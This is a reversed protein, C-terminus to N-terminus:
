NSNLKKVIFDGIRQGQVQGHEIAQRFHIGGYLRSIAAEDAAAQFSPFSRIPLGYPVESNDDISINAGFVNTLVTAAANSIVSHGSTYEPFPPTQLLPRWSEDIRSNIYTEPRIYVSRYKEDWCSIFGDYLAIATYTYAKATTFIDAGKNRSAIAAISMWHGGPSLKKTAFMLHGNTNLFFPNCDWFLSIDRQETTINKVAQYVEIAQGHFSGASDAYDFPVPPRFQSASDLLFPKMKGWHPEIAAMYGPPTPIWRGTASTISYRRMSRTEKYNDKSALKLISDSVQQGFAVSAKFKKNDPMGKRFEELILAASDQLRQESFILHVSTNLFASLAALPLYVQSGQQPLGVAIDRHKRFSTLPGKELALVEYAALNAYLYIRSAVPPSFVDHVIVDTLAQQARHLSAAERKSVPQQAATTTIVVIMLISLVKRM